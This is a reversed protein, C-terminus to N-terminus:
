NPRSPAVLEFGHHERDRFTVMLAFACRSTQAAMTCHTASWTPSWRAYGSPTGLARSTAKWSPNSAANPTAPPQKTWTRQVVTQMHAPGLQLALGGAQRIRTVDLLDEITPGMRQSSRLVRDVMLAAKDPPPQRKLVTAAAVISQLPTRLDHSLM